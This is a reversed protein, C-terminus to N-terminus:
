KASYSKLISDFYKSNRSYASQFVTLSLLAIHDGDLQTIIKFDKTFSKSVANYFLNELKTSNKSSEVKLLESYPYTCDTGLTFRRLFSGTIRSKEEAVSASLDIVDMALVASDSLTFLNEASSTWRSDLTITQTFNELKKFTIKQKQSKKASFDAKHSDEAKLPLGEFASFNEDSSSILQGATVQTLVSNGADSIIQKVNFVPVLPDFTVTVDGGFQEFKQPISIMATVNGAKQRRSTLEYLMDHLYNILETDEATTGSLIREGTLDVYNKAPDLTVLISVDKAPLLPTSKTQAPAFYRLGYTSDDYYVIGFYSEREFTSDKYYVFQGSQDPIKQTVGPLAFLPVNLSLLILTLSSLIKKLHISKM